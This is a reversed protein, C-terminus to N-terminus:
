LSVFLCVCMCVFLYGVYSCGNVSMRVYLMCDYARFSKCDKVCVFPYVSSCVFMCDYVGVVYVCEFGVFM